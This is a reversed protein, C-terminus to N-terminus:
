GRAPIDDHAAAAPYRRALSKVIPGMRSGLSGKVMVADGPHVAALVQAELEAASAAHGGRREAPLAEWLAAMLPGACFVLDITNEAVAAALGRHLETAATGLELMDGLVAIRRGRAGVTARGLVALAARMSSPNANYSEDILLAQGSGVFLDIRTGRGTAPRQDALALAALALDAGVLSVAALVALSNFVFHRGPAGIRYDALTGLISAEVTSGDDQLAYKLLRSDAKSHEGFSVIRAVGAQSAHRKLRQWHPNDRNIVAAGGPEIGSFIEAKADAIAAVSAFFELHVPEVTTVIAVHPRVMRVLPTIEGAHNMGIEFVGYRATEPLRALSLPVGWHNNFSATSAHTEGDASLAIRLAEKTSTKGVSGTVAVIKAPSRARAARALDRLGDLVDPVVLLPADAPFESRRAASVVALAAGNAFAKAVFDHGDLRDGAIAFFAEGSSVTRSDISLGVIADPLPGARTASMAAAMDAVTWLPPHTM